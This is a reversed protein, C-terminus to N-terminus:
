VCKKINSPIAAIQESTLAACASPSLFSINLSNADSIAKVQASTLVKIQAASLSRVQGVPNNSASGSTTGYTIGKLANVSLYKINEAFAIIKEDSLKKVEDATFSSVQEPISVLTLWTAPQLRNLEPEDSQVLPNFGLLRVQATSLVQIQEPTISKIQGVPNNSALGSTTGYTLASIAANSLLRIQTGLATIKKDSLKEIDFPTLSAVLDNMSVLESWASDNLSNLESVKDVLPNHGLQQMQEKSMVRIQNRSIADISQTLFGNLVNDPLLKISEGLAVVDSPQCKGVNAVTFCPSINPDITNFSQKANVWFGEGSPVSVMYDYGKSQAYEKGGDPLSPAFFAWKQKLRDWRWVTTVKTADNFVQKVDLIIKSNHGVLNWGPDLSFDFDNAFSSFCLAISTACFVRKFM